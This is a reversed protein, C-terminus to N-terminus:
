VQGDHVPRRQDTVARGCRVSDGVVVVSPEDRRGLRRRGDRGDPVLDKWRSRQDAQQSVLSIVQAGETRKLRCQSSNQEPCPAREETGTAGDDKYEALSGALIAIGAVQGAETLYM